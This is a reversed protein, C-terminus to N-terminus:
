KPVRQKSEGARVRRMFEIGRKGSEVAARGAAGAHGGAAAEKEAADAGDRAGGGDPAGILPGPPRVMGGDGAAGGEDLAGTAVGTMAAAIGVRPHVHTEHGATADAVAADVREP